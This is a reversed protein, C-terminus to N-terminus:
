PRNQGAGRLESPSRQLGRRFHDRSYAYAPHERFAVPIPLSGRSPKPTRWSVKLRPGGSATTAELHTEGASHRRELSAGAANETCTLTAGKREEIRRVQPDPTRTGGPAGADACLASAACRADRHSSGDAKAAPERSVTGGPAGCTTCLLLDALKSGVTEWPMAAIAVLALAIANLLKKQTIIRHRHVPYFGRSLSPRFLRHLLM